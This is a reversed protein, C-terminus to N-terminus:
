PDYSVRHGHESTGVSPEPLKLLYSKQPPPQLTIKLIRLHEMLEMFFIDYILGVNELNGRREGDAEPQPDFHGKEGQYTSRGPLGNRENEATLRPRDGWVSGTM